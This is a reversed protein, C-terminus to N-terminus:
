TLAPNAIRYLVHSRLPHGEPIAPHEFDSTPDYTMGIKEMVRRSPLNDRFTIAGVEPLGISTWAFDLMARAGEPAFGQGWFQKDFQWGIEAPPCRPIAARLDDTMPAMGLMGIFAGDSKRETALFTYGHDILRQKAREIGADADAYTGVSPFFRRVHPDGIIDAYLAKDAERWERLILRETELRV